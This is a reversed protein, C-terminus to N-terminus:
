KNKKDTERVTTRTHSKAYSESVYRWTVASRYHVSVKSSKAM